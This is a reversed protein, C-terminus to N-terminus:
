AGRIWQDSRGTLANDPRWLVTREIERALAIDKDTIGGASHTNLGVTLRGWSVMLDPHHDAAEAVFGIANVVMLTTRWGDTVYTRRIQGEAFHWGPLSGLLEQLESESYTKESKPM